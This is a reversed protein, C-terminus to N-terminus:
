CIVDGTLYLATQDGRKNLQTSITIGQLRRRLCSVRFVEGM